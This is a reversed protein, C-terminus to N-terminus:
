RALLAVVRDRHMGLLAQSLATLARYDGRGATAEFTNAFDAAWANEQMRAEASRAPLNRAEDSLAEAALQHAHRVADHATTVQQLTDRLAAPSDLSWQDPRILPAEPVIRATAFQGTPFRRGEGKIALLDRANTWDAERVSFVLEGRRDQRARVGSPALARDFRQAIDAPDHGPEIAIAVARQTRGHAALYLTETDGKTLADVTLGRVTFRQEATGPEVQDLQNDLAGGTAATRTRWLADFRQVQRSLDSVSGPDSESRFAGLQTTLASRIGHLQAEARGLFEMTRQSAAVRQNLQTDLSRLGGRMPAAQAASAERAAEPGRANDTAGVNAAADSRTAVSRETRPGVQRGSDVLALQM